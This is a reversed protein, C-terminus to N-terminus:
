QGLVMNSATLDGYAADEGYAVVSGNNKCAEDIVANGNFNVATIGAATCGFSDDNGITINGNNICNTFTAKANVYGPVVGVIGAALMGDSDYGMQTGDINVNNTCNEFTSIGYAIACIGGCNYSAGETNTHATINGEVTLNKITAGDVVGFLGAFVADTAMSQDFMLNSVTKGNGDFTGAFKNDMTGIPIWNSVGDLVIDNALTITENEFTEGGNVAAAFDILHAATSITNTGRWSDNGGAVEPYKAEKDYQENFSDSEETYQTAVLNIGLDISPAEDGRYNAENEVDEPMYVVLAITNSKTKASLHGEDSAYGASVFVASDKVAERASTRGADDATYTTANNVVGFKIINSLDIDDGDINKGLVKDAVNIGFQYKLALSGVNEVQLYVVRTYGPEWLTDKFMDTNEDVREWTKGDTSWNLEVDLNGAVIRNKGSIVSDTFWAFTSGILMALCLMMSLVSTLLARKTNKSNTM